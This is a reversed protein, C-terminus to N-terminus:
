RGHRTEVTEHICADIGEFDADIQEAIYHLRQQLFDAKFKAWRAIATPGDAGALVAM